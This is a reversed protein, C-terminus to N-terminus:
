VKGYPIYINLQWEVQFCYNEPCNNDLKVLRKFLAHFMGNDLKDYPLEGNKEYERM